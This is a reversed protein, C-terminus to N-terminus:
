VNRAKALAVWEAEATSNHHEVFVRAAAFHARSWPSNAALRSIIELHKQAMESVENPILSRGFAAGMPDTLRIPLESQNALSEIVSEELVNVWAWYYRSAKGACTIRLVISMAPVLVHAINIQHVGGRVSYVATGTPLNHGLECALLTVKGDM